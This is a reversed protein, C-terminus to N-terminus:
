FPRLLFHWASSDATFIFSHPSCWNWFTQCSCFLTCHLWWLLLKLHWRRMKNADLGRIIPATLHQDPLVPLFWFTNQKLQVSSTNKCAQPEPCFVLIYCGLLPIPYRCSGATPWSDLQWHPDHMLDCPLLCCVGHPCRPNRNVVVDSFSPRRDLMGQVALTGAEQAVNYIGAM